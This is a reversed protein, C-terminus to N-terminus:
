PNADADGSGFGSIVERCKLEMSANETMTAAAYKDGASEGPRLFVYAEKRSWCNFFGRSEVDLPFGALDRPESVSFFCQTIAKIEEDYRVKEIDM